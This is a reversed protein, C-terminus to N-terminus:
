KKHRDMYRVNREIQGLAWFVTVCVIFGIFYNENVDASAILAHLINIGFAVAFFLVISRIITTGIM